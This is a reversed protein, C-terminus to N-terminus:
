TAIQKFRKADMDAKAILKETAYTMLLYNEMQGYSTLKGDTRTGRSSTFQVSIHMDKPYSQYIRKSTVSYSGRKAKTSTM